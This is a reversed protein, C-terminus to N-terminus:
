RHFTVVYTGHPSWTHGTETWKKRQHVVKDADKVDPQVDNWLVESEDAYRIVYQDRAKDDLLWQRLNGRETPQPPPPATYTDPSEIIRAFESFQCVSFVHAKDLQHGDTQQVAAAADKKNTFEIFAFRCFCPWRADAM